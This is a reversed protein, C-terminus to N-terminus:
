KLSIIGEVINKIKEVVELMTCISFHSGNFAVPLLIARDEAIFGSGELIDFVFLRAFASTKTVSLCDDRSSGVLGLLM